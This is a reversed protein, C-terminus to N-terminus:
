FYTKYHYIDNKDFSCYCIEVMNKKTFAASSWGGASYCLFHNKLRGLPVEFFFSEDTYSFITGNKYIQFKKDIINKLMHYRNDKPDITDIYCGNRYKIRGDYQLIIKVIDLPFLTM